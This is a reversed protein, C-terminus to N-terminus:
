GRMGGSRRRRGTFEFTLREMHSRLHSFFRCIGTLGRRGYRALQEFCIVLRERDQKMRLVIPDGMLLSRDLPCVDGRTRLTRMYELL